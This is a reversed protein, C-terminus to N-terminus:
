SRDWLADDGSVLGASLEFRTANAAAIAANFDAVRTIQMVPAFIEEDPCM